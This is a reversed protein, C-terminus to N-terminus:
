RTRCRAAGRDADALAARPQDRVPVAHRTTGRAELNVIFAADKSRAADAVFGEAGLLGAEEGDDILFVVPNALTDHRIARAIELASAVGTGDDSAGPGAPVSDYHAAVVVARPGAAQGPRRAILNDVESCTAGANCAFAHQVEVAYDLARLAAALKDRVADHAPMGIPHPADVSVAHLTAIARAASFQDAPASDPAPDPNGLRCSEFWALAALVAFVVFPKGRPTM